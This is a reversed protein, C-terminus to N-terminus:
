IGDNWPIYLYISLSPRPSVERIPEVRSTREHERITLAYRPSITTMSSSVRILAGISRTKSRERLM